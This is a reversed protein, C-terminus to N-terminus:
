SRQAEELAVKAAAAHDILQTMWPEVEQGDAQLRGVQEQFQGGLALYENILDLYEQSLTELRNTSGNQFLQFDTEWAKSIEEKKALVAKWKAEMEKGLTITQNRIFKAEAGEAERLTAVRTGICDVAAVAAEDTASAAALFVKAATWQAIPISFAITASVGLGGVVEILANAAAAM